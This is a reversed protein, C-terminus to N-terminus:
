GTVIDYRGTGGEIRKGCCRPSEASRSEGKRRNRGVVNNKVLGLDVLTFERRNVQPKPLRGNRSEYTKGSQAHNQSPRENGKSPGVRFYGVM